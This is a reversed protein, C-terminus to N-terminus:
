ERATLAEERRTLEGERSLLEEVVM